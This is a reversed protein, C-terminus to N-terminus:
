TAHFKCCRRLVACFDNRDIDNGESVNTTQFLNFAAHAAAKCRARFVASGDVKLYLTARIVTIRSVAAAGPGVELIFRQIWSGGDSKDSYNYYSPMNASRDLTKTGGPCCFDRSAYVSNQRMGGSLASLIGRKSMILKEHRQNMSGSLSNLAASVTNFDRTLQREACGTCLALQKTITRLQRM